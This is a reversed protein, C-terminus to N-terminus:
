RRVHGDVTLQSMTAIVTCVEITHKLITVILPHLEVPAVIGASAMVGILISYKQIKRWFRPTKSLWRDQINKM